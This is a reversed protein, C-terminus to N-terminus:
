SRAHSALDALLAAVRTPDAVFPSHDAEWEVVHDAHRAMTRQVDPHIAQDRTCVVYTSAVQRWAPDAHDIPPGGPGPISRLRAIVATAAAEDADAYFCARARAPDVTTRGDAEVIAEHLPVPHSFWLTFPEEDAEVMFACLYVLHAVPLGRAAASIVFGGYSHGCVVADPGAEEIAARATATDDPFGTFPLDVAVSPVGRRELEAVVGDWAWAGHWAGHVLVVGM